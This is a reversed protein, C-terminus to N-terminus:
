SIIFVHSGFLSSQSSPVPIRKLMFGNVREKRYNGKEKADEQSDNM